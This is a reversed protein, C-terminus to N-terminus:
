FVSRSLGTSPDLVVRCGPVPGEPAKVPIKGSINYLGRVPSLAGDATAGATDSAHIMDRVGTLGLEDALQLVPTAYGAQM